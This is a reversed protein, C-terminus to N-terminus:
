NGRCGCPRLRSPLLACILQFLVRNLPSEGRKKRLSSFRNSGAERCDLDEIIPRLKPHAYGFRVGASALEGLTERGTKDVEVVDGLDLIARRNKLRDRVEGWRQTLQAATRDTLEGELRLKVSFPEEFVLIRLMAREEISLHLIPKKTVFLLHM